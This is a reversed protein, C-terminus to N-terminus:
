DPRGDARPRVLFPAFTIALVAFAASWLVAAVWLAPGYWAANLPAAARVLAALLIAVYAGAVPKSAVVGRGTHALSVRTMMGVIMMGFAGVTLAHTATSVPVYPTFGALGRLLLGLGFWAYGVHLVWVVPRQRTHWARWGAMRVLNLAGALLAVGASARDLGAFSLAAMLTVAAIAALGVRPRRRVELEGIVNQTFNPVLRGGLIVFIVLVLDLGLTLARTAWVTGTSLHFLLNAGALGFLLPVFGLNRWAGARLIPRSLAVALGLLFACDAVTVALPPLMAGLLVALRGVVWLGALLALPAGTPTPQQTWNRVATLLFGAVVAATFGFIMEHGHWAPGMPRSALEVHGTLALLWLPVWIAAMPAALLFFIRFGLALVTGSARSGPRPSGALPLPAASPRPKGIHTVLQAM